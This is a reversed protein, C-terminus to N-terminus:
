KLTLFRRWTLNAIQNYLKGGIIEETIRGVRKRLKIYKIKEKEEIWSGSFHHIAYTDLKVEIKGLQWNMPCFYDSPYIHVDGKLVQYSNDIRLGFYDKSIQTIVETNATLNAIGDKDFFHRNEYYELLVKIWYNHKTAAMLGTPIHFPSEFSSFASHNLFRDIPKLIEVDSDLYIGGYNYLAYLRVYDTIFAWKKAQFAENTYPHSEIDFSNENWLMLKYGHLNKNWSRICRKALSPMPKGGFWCYHILRPIIEGDNPEIDLETIKYITKM